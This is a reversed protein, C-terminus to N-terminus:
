FMPIPVPLEVGAIDRLVDSLYPYAMFQEELFGSICSADDDVVQIRWVSTGDIRRDCHQMVPPFCM